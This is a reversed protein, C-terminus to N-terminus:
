ITFHSWFTSYPFMFYEFTFMKGFTDKANSFKETCYELYSPLESINEKGFKQYVGQGEPVGQGSLMKTQFNIYM